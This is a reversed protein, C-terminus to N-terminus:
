LSLVCGVWDPPPPVLRVEPPGQSQIRTRTPSPLHPQRVRLCKRRANCLPLFNHPRGPSPEAPNVMLPMWCLLSLLFFTKSALAFTGLCFHLLMLSDRPNLLSHCSEMPGM